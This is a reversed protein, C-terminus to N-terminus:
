TRLWAGHICWPGGDPGAGRLGDAAAGTLRRVTSLEPRLLTARSRDSQHLAVMSCDGSASM